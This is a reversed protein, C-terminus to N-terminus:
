SCQTNGQGNMGSDHSLIIRALAHRRHLFLFSLTPDALSVERGLFVSLSYTHCHLAMHLM